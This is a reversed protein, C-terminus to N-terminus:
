KSLAGRIELFSNMSPLMSAIVFSCEWKTFIERGKGSYFEVTDPGVMRGGKLNPYADLVRRLSLFDEAIRKGSPQTQGPHTYVGPETHHVPFISYITDSHCSQM